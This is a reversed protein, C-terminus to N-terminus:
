KTFLRGENSLEFSKPVNWDFYWLRWNKERKEQFDKKSITMLHWTRVKNIKELSLFNIAGIPSNGSPIGARVFYPNGILNYTYVRTRTPTIKTNELEIKMAILYDDDGAKGDIKQLSPVWGRYPSNKDSLDIILIQEFTGKVTYSFDHTQPLPNMKGGWMTEINTHHYAVEAYSAARKDVKLAGGKSLTLLRDTMVVAEARTANKDKGLDGNALGTILGRKTAEYMLLDNSDKGTRLSANSARAVIKAIEMRTIAHDYNGNYDKTQHIGAAVAANVYPVYWKGTTDKTSLGMVNVVMKMFEARTISANPKFTGDAYGNAYGLQIMKLISSEAWHGSIDSVAPAAEAVRNLRVYEISGFLLVITCVAVVWRKLM